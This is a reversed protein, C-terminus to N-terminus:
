GHPTGKCIGEGQEGAGRERGAERGRRRRHRARHRGARARQPEPPREDARGPEVQLALLQQQERRLALRQECGAAGLFLRAGVAGAEGGLQMATGPLAEGLPSHGTPFLSTGPISQPHAWYPVPIHGTHPSYDGTAALM